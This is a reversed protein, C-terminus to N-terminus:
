PAFVAIWGGLSTPGTFQGVIAIRGDPAGAIDLPITGLEDFFSTHVAGSYTWALSGDTRYRNVTWDRALVSDDNLQYLWGVETGAACIGNPAFDPDPLRVSHGLADTHSHGSATALLRGGADVVFMGHYQDTIHEVGEVPTGDAAFRVLNIPEDFLVAVNVTGDPEIAVGFEGLSSVATAWSLNGDTDWRAVGTDGHIAVAGDSGVALNHIFGEGDGCGVAHPDLPRTWLRSGDPALKVVTTATQAYITDGPGTAVSCAALGIRWVVAGTPSFKTVGKSTAILNGAGDFAASAIPSGGPLLTWQEKPDTAFTAAVVSLGPAVTLECTPGASTCAGTLGQYISPTAATIELHQGETPHLLCNKRCTGLVTGTDEDTVRVEGVGTGFVAIVLRPAGATADAADVNPAQIPVAEETVAPETAGAPDSEMEAHCASLLIVVAALGHTARMCLWHGRRRESIAFGRPSDREDPQQRENGHEGM